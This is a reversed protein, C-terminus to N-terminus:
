PEPYPVVSEQENPDTRAVLALAPETDSMNMPKHPVNPPIFVFTGPEHVLSKALGLGYLTEVRGKLLYIATEHGDHWHARAAGGPPIEVLHMCLGKAGVSERSVGEFVPLGQRGGVAAGPRRVLIEGEVAGASRTDGGDPRVSLDGRGAHGTPMTPSAATGPVPAPNPHAEPAGMPQDNRM